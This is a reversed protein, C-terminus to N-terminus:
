ATEETVLLNPTGTIATSSIVAVPGTYIRNSNREYVQNPALPFTYAAATATAAFALLVKFTSPNYFTMAKRAANSALAVSSVATFLPATITGTGAQMLGLISAANIDQVFLADGSSNGLEVGAATRLNVFMARNASLQVAGAQGSTLPTVSTNFVGGVPQYTSTGYTFTAEDVVGITMANIINVDLGQKSGNLTSTIGTGASDRVNIFQGADASELFGQFFGM